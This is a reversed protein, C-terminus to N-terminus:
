RRKSNSSGRSGSHGCSAAGENDPNQPPTLRADGGVEGDSRVAVAASRQLDWSIGGCYSKRGDRCCGHYLSPMTLCCLLGHPSPDLAAASKSLPSDRRLPRIPPFPSRSLGLSLAISVLEILPIFHGSNKNRGYIFMIQQSLQILCTL